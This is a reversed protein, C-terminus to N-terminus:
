LYFRSDTTNWHHTAPPAIHLPHRWCEGLVHLLKSADELQRGVFQKEIGPVRGLIVLLEQWTSHAETGEQEITADPKFKMM